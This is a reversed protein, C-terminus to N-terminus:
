ASRRDDNLFRGVHTFLIKHKEEKKIGGGVPMSYEGIELSIRTKEGNREIDLATRNRPGYIRRAVPVVHYGQHQYHWAMAQAIGEIQAQPPMECAFYDLTDTASEAKLRIDADRRLADGRAPRERDFAEFAMARFYDAVTYPIADGGGLARVVGRFSGDGVKRGVSIQKKTM